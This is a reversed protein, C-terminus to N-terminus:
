FTVTIIVCLSCFGKKNVNLVQLKSELNTYQECCLLNDFINIHCTVLTQGRLIHVVFDRFMSKSSFDSKINLWELFTM